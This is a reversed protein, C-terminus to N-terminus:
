NAHRQHCIGGTIYICKRDCPLNRKVFCKNQKGVFKRGLCGRMLAQLISIITLEGNEM